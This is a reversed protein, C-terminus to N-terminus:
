APLHGVRQDCQQRAAKSDPFACDLDRERRVVKNLDVRVDVVFHDRLFMPIAQWLGIIAHQIEEAAKTIEAQRQCPLLWCTM